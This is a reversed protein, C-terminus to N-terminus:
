MQKTLDFNLFDEQIRYNRFIRKPPKSYNQRFNLCTQQSLTPWISIFVGPNIRIDIKAKARLPPLQQVGWSIVAAECLVAHWM